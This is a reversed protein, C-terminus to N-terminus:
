TSDTWAMGSRMQSQQLSLQTMQVTVLKVSAFNSCRRCPTLLCNSSSCLHRALLSTHSSGKQASLHSSGLFPDYRPTSPPSTVSRHSALSRTTEFCRFQSSIIHSSTQCVQHVVIGKFIFADPEKSADVAVLWSCPAVRRFELIRLFLATLVELRAFKCDNKCSSLDMAAAASCHCLCSAHIHCLWQPSVCLAVTETNINIAGRSYM